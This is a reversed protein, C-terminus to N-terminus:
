GIEQIIVSVTGSDTIMFVGLDAAAVEVSQKKFLPEGTTTSLGTPGFWITNTGDNYIRVFQRGTVRTAGVKAEVETTLVTQPGSLYTSENTDSYNSSENVGM